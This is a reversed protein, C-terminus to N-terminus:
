RTWKQEGHSNMYVFHGLTSKKKGKLKRKM